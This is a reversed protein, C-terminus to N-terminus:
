NRDAVHPRSLEDRSSSALAYMLPQNFARRSSFFSRKCAALAACFAASKMRFLASSRSASLRSAAHRTVIIPLALALPPFPHASFFGLFQQLVIQLAHFFNAGVIRLGAPVVVTFGLFDDVLYAVRYTRLQFRAQQFDLSTEPIRCIRCATKGISNNRVSQAGPLSWAGARIRSLSARMLDDREASLRFGDLTPKM